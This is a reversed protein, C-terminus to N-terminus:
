DVKAALGEEMALAMDEPGALTPHNIGAVAADADGTFKAGLAKAIDGLRLM